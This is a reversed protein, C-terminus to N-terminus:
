YRTKPFLYFYGPKKYCDLVRIAKQNYPPRQDKHIEKRWVTKADKLLWCETVGHENNGNYFNNYCGKCYKLKEKKTLSM